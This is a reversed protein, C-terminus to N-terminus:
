EKIGLVQQYAKVQSDLPKFDTHSCCPVTPASGDHGYFPTARHPVHQYFVHYYGKYYVLGNPDNVWGSQTTDHHKLRQVYDPHM